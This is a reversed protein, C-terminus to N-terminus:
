GIIHVWGICIKIDHFKASLPISTTYGERKKRKSTDHIVTATLNV